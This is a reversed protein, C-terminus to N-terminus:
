PASGTVSIGQNEDDDHRSTVDILLRYSDDVGSRDGTILLDLILGRVAALGLRAQTRARRAEVGDRILAATLIELWPEIMNTALTRAYPRGQMAHASLEFFLPGFKIMSEVTESWFREALDRPSGGSPAEIM